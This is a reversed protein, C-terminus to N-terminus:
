REYHSVNIEAFGKWKEPLDDLAFIASVPCALVCAGCDIYEVPNIYLQQSNGFESQNKGLHICDVSLCRCM